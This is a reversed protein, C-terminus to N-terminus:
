QQTKEVTLGWGDVVDKMDEDDMIGEFTAEVAGDTAQVTQVTIRLTYDAESYGKKDAEVMTIVVTHRAEEPMNGTYETWDDKWNEEDTTFDPIAPREEKTSYYWKKESRGFDVDDHLKVWDLFKGTSEEKSLVDKYYFWGDNGLIWKDGVGLLEKHVVTADGDVLGDESDLQYTANSSTVAKVGSVTYFAEDKDEANKRSWIDEFMVRVVVDQSGTNQIVLDKNVQVGPKWNEGESPDFEEVVTTGYRKTYFPNEITETKSFYAFSSGIVALAALGALGLFYKNRM